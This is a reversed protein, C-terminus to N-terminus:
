LNLLRKAKEEDVFNSWGNACLEEAAQRLTITGAQVDAKLSQLINPCEIIRSM